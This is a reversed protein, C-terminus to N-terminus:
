EWNDKEEAYVAPLIRALNTFENFNHELLQKAMEMPFEAGGPMLYKAEGDIISYGLWFRSRLECGYETDRAMHTMVSPIRGVPSDIECNACVFFSCAKTGIKEAEYGLDEPKKFNLFMTAPPDGIVLSEKVVHQIGCCREQLTKGPALVKHLDEYSLDLGYHDFPDWIAYRLPDLPHWAFWWQLMEGNSGAFVTRNAVLKGGEKTQFVGQEGALYGDQFLDNRDHISLGDKMDKVPHKLFEAKDDPLPELDKLYYKYYSRKEAGPRLPVRNFESM